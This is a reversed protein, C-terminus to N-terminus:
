TIRSVWNVVKSEYRTITDPILVLFATHVTHFPKNSVIPTTVQTKSLDEVSNKNDLDFM